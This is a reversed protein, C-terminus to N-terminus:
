DARPAFRYRRVVSNGNNDEEVVLFTDGRITPRVQTSLNGAYPVTTLLRGQTDFIDFVRSRTWCPSAIREQLDESGRACPEHHVGALERLVWVRGQDDLFLGDFAPKRAPREPGNWTWNPFRARAELVINQKAWEWEEPQM